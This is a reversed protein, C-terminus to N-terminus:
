SINEPTVRMPVSVAGTGWSIMTWPGPMSASCQRMMLSPWHWKEGKLISQYNQGRFSSLWKIYGSVQERQNLIIVNSPSYLGKTNLYIIESLHHLLFIIDTYFTHIKQMYFLLPPSEPDMHDGRCDPHLVRWQAWVVWVLHPGDSM